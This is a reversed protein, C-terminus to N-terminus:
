SMRLTEELWHIQYIPHWMVYSHFMTLYQNSSNVFLTVSRTTGPLFIKWSKNSESQNYEYYRENPTSQPLLRCMTRSSSRFFSHYFAVKQLKSEWCVLLFGNQTFYSQLSFQEYLCPRFNLPVHDFVPQFITCFLEASKKDGPSFYNRVKKRSLNISILIGKM